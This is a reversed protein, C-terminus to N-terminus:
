EGGGPPISSVVFFSRAEADNGAQDNVTVVLNHGGDALAIPSRLQIEGDTDDFANRFADSVARGDITVQISSDFIGSGSDTLQIRFQPHGDRAIVTTQDAPQLIHVQPPITDRPGSPEDGGNCAVALMSVAGWAVWRAARTSANGNM